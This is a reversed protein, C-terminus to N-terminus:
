AVALARLQDEVFAWVARVRPVSALARHTVLWVEASLDVPATHLEVLGPLSRGWDRALEVAGVGAQALAIRTTLSTAAVVARVAARQEWRAEPIHPLTELDWGVFDVADLAHPGPGLADAFEPSGFLAYPGEYLRKAVLDGRSPRFFRVAVDAERRTLDSVGTSVVYTVRLGPHRARLSATAPALVYFAMGEAVAVRVEGEIAQERGAVIRAVDHSAEEAREAADLVRDALERPVLGGPTRDFLAAGVAQEFAALRRSCTSQNLGLRAAAQTLSRTRYAALFLRLDDWRYEADSAMRSLMLVM